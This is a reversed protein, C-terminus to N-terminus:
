NFFDWTVGIRLFNKQIPFGVLVQNRKDNWYYGINEMRVNMRFDGLTFGLFASLNTMQNFQKNTNELSFIDITYNYSMLDYSSVWSLDTGFICELKKAKFMKKKIFIRSNITTKPIYNFNSTPMTLCFRPQITLIGLKLSGSLALSNIVITNLTDNRWISDIFFYNNNLITNTFSAQINTFNSFDYKATVSGLLRNQLQYNELKYDYKNSYYFRQFQDPWKQEISLLGSIKIKRIIVSLNSSNSWERGAGIINFYFSNKITSKKIKLELLSTFNIEASDIHKGLNQYDWYRHQLLLDLFLGKTKTYFGASNRISALRYQDRTKYQNINFNSVLDMESYERSTAEYQHKSTLGLSKLTDDLVNFYNSLKVNASKIIQKADKKLVPLSELGQNDITADNTIGGNLSSNKNIYNSELLMSHFKDNRRLYVSIINDTYYSNRLFGVLTSKSGASNRLGEINLLTKKSIAHQYDYHLFQIGKAGFFYSFGLHPTGSFVLPKFLTNNKYNQLGSNLFLFSTSFINNQNNLGGGSFTSVSKCYTMDLSDLEKGGTRHSYKITDKESFLQNEQCFLFSPLILLILLIQRM